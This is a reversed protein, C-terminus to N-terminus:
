DLYSTKTKNLWAYVAGIGLGGGIMNGVWVVAWNLAISAAGFGAPQPDSIFALTFLSFNAIVHELGLGVFIAILPIIVVFKSVIDSAKLAGVVAMNVVFNAAIAELFMGSVPKALKGETLTAILHTSDMGGLKGSQSMIFAVIIAGVLNFITAAIMLWLAKGWSFQGRAAGWSGFMMDGTALEAGLIVIAFLGLGFFLAFVLPGTGPALNETVNGAVAAFATGLTLYIGALIARVAFRPFDNGLLEAKKATGTDIAEHLAM